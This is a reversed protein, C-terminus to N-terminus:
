QRPTAVCKDYTDPTPDGARFHTFQKGRIDASVAESLRRQCTKATHDITIQESLVVRLPAVDVPNQSQLIDSPQSGAVCAGGAICPLTEGVVRHDFHALWDMDPVSVKLELEGYGRETCFVSKDDLQIAIWTTTDKLVRSRVEPAAQARTAIGLTFTLALATIIPTRM